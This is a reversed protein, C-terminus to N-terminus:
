CAPIRLGHLHAEHLTKIPASKRFLPTSKGCPQRGVFLSRKNGLYSLGTITTDLDTLKSGDKPQNLELTLTDM